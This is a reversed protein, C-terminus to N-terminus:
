RFRPLWGRSADLSPLAGRRVVVGLRSRDTCKWLPSKRRHWTRRGAALGDVTAARHREVLLDLQLKERVQLGRGFAFLMGKGVRRQHFAEAHAAHGNTVRDGLENAPSDNLPNGPAPRKQDSLRPKRQM